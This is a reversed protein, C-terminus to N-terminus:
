AMLADTIQRQVRADVFWNGGARMDAALRRFPDRAPVALHQTDRLRFAFFHKRDRTQGVEVGLNFGVLALLLRMRPLGLDALVSAFRLRPNARVRFRGDLPAASIGSFHKNLAALVVSLAIASETLRTPLAIV